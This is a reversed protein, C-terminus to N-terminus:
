KKKGGVRDLVSKAEKAVAHDAGYTAILAELGKKAEAKKAGPAKKDDLVAAFGTVATLGDKTLREDAARAEIQVTEGLKMKAIDAIAAVQAKVDKATAGDDLRKKAELLAKMGEGPEKAKPCRTRAIEAEKKFINLPANGYVAYLWKEEHDLWVVSPVFEVKHKTKVAADTADFDVLVPTYGAVKARVEPDKWTVSAFM